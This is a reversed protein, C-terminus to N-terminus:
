AFFSGPLPSVIVKAQYSKPILIHFLACNHRAQKSAQKSAQKLTAFRPM